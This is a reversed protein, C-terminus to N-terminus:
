LYFRFVLTHITKIKCCVKMFGISSVKVKLASKYETDSQKPKKFKRPGEESYLFCKNAPVNEHKHFGGFFRVNVQQGDIAMVKAPWYRAGKKYAWVILHPPHCLM